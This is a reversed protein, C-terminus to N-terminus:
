RDTITQDDVVDLVRKFGAERHLGAKNVSSSPSVDTFLYKIDKLVLYSVPVLFLSIITAFLVGFAISAAMPVLFQAQLSRELLLPLLGALTTLSTLLIPRFRQSGASQVVEELFEQTDRNRNITDVLVLSDNVVVGVVAVIGFISLVTLDIGLAVHGWFAGIIGFPIASMVILPQLYSRFAVALLAYIIFLTLIFGRAIATATKRQEQQEGAFSTEIDPFDALIRPLSEARLSALINGPNAKSLDVDASVDVTRRRNTREITAFGQAHEVEAVTSFPIQRGDPARVWMTDLTALSSREHLPYRLMIEIEEERQIRHIREGYFAQRVQRALGALTLGLAEGEPTIDFKIQQKGVELSDAVNYVGPFKELEDRIASATARLEEFSTGALRVQIPKGPSFLSATFSVEGGPIRGSLERWRQLIEGASADREEAPALDLNIEGLHSGTFAEGIGTSSRSQITRFPQEGISTLMHRIPNRADASREALEDRLADASAELDKLLSATVESPTGQPMTLLAVVNEAEIPPLFVFGLRGGAVMAITLLLVGLAGALASYRWAIVHGLAPLYLREIVSELGRGIVGQVYLWARLPASKSPKEPRAHSLHAPLVLLSEILSMLLTLIVIIPIGRFVQGILGPIALLPAFAVITTLVSFTVPTAVEVVGDVAAPFPPKGMEQHRHINEGVIIADDVVIGLVVLFAFLSVTNITLDM